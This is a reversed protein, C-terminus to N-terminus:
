FEYRKGNVVKVRGGDASNGEFSHTRTTKQVNVVLVGVNLWFYNDAGDRLGCLNYSRM